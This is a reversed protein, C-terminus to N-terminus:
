FKPVKLNCVMLYGLIIVLVPYVRYDIWKSLLLSLTLIPGCFTIPVGVFYTKVNIVNFRALRFAGCLAFVVAVLLGRHGWHYLKMAYALLAPAIGFSVLDSLSDLEKGFESVVQFRRALRGDMSDMIMAGFIAYAAEHYMGEMTLFLSIFGLALNIMTVANPIFIMKNPRAKKEHQEM